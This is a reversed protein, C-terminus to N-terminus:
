KREACIKNFEANTKLQISRILEDYSMGTILKVWEEHTPRRTNDYTINIKLPERAM